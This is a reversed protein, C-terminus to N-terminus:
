PSPSETSNSRDRVGARQQLRRHVPPSELERRADSGIWRASKSPRVMLRRSSATAVRNLAPNRKGIQRLAWNVAKRVYPRDDESAREVLKLYGVFQRDPAMKDHVALAAILSFAARRVFEPERRSWELIKAHAYPTRRFLDLCCGDCIAWNDFDRVWSDMQAQTVRAPDDVLAALVRADHIRTDWLSAALAHDCGIEKAMRRLVPVRVGYAKESRIGYRAM